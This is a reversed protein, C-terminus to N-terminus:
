KYADNGENPFGTVKPAPFYRGEMIEYYYMKALRRATGKSNPDTKTDILLAELVKEFEVTAEDVLTEIDGSDLYDSINDNAWFRIGKEKFQEAITKYLTVNKSKEMRL